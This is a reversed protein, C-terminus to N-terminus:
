QTPNTLVKVRIVVQWPTASIPSGSTDQMRTFTIGDISSPVPLIELLQAVRVVSAYTGQASVVFGFSNSPTTGDGILAGDSLADSIRISADASKGAANIIGSISAPDVNLLTDLQARSSATDKVLAHMAQAQVDQNSQRVTDQQQNVRDTSTQAILSALYGVGVWSLIALILVIYAIYLSTKKM